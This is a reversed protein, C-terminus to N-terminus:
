ALGAQKLARQFDYEPKRAPRGRRADARRGRYVKENGSGLDAQTQTEHRDMRRRGQSFRPAINEGNQNVSSEIPRCFASRSTASPFKVVQSGGSVTTGSAVGGASVAETGGAGVVSGSD